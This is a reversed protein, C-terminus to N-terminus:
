SSHWLRNLAVVLMEDLRTLLDLMQFLRRGRDHGIAAVIVAYILSLAVIAEVSV